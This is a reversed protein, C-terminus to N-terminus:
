HQMNIIHREWPTRLKDPHFGFHKQFLQIPGRKVKRTTRYHELHKALPDALKGGNWHVLFHVLGWMQATNEQSLIADDMRILDPFPELFEYPGPDEFQLEDILAELYLRSIKGPVLKLDRFASFEYVRSFGEELWQPMSAKSVSNLFQRTGYYLLVNHLKRHQGSTFYYGYVASQEPGTTFSGKVDPGHNKGPAMNTFEGRNKTVVVSVRDLDYKKDPFFNSRLISDYLLEMLLAIEGAAKRSIDTKVTYHLTEVEWPNDMTRGGKIAGRQMITFNRDPIYKKALRQIQQKRRQSQKKQNNNAGDQKSPEPAACFNMNSLDENLGPPTFGTMEGSGQTIHVPTSPTHYGSQQDGSAHVGSCVLISVIVAHALFTRRAM